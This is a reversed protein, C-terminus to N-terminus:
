NFPLYFMMRVRVRYLLIVEIKCFLSKSFLFSMLATDFSGQSVQLDLMSFYVSDHIAGSIQHNNTICYCSVLVSNFDPKKSETESHQVVSNEARMGTRGVFDNKFHRTKLPASPFISPFLNPSPDRLIEQMILKHKEQLGGSQCSFFRVSILLELM